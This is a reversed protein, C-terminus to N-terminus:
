VFGIAFIIFVNKMFFSASCVFSKLSKISIVANSIRVGMSSKFFFVDSPISQIGESSVFVHGHLICRNKM